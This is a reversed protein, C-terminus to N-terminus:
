LFSNKDDPDNQYLIRVAIYEIAITKDRGGLLVESTVALKLPQM